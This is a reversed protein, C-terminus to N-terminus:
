YHILEYFFGLKNNRILNSFKNSILFNFVDDKEPHVMIEVNHRKAMNIIKSIRIQNSIPSLSFFYDTTIYKKKLYSNLWSRLLRNIASKEGYFFCFSLRIPINSNLLKKILINACLHIHHHGNYFYPEGKYLYIFEDQQKKILYELSNEIFPNYIFPALKFLSFFSIIKKQHELLKINNDSSTFPTTLNIHLGFELNNFNAIEAARKSDEMFVMVSASTIRKKNSCTLIRDTIFKNKGYDDATIILM